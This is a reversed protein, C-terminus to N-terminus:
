QTGHWPWTLTSDGAAAAAQALVHSNMMMMM